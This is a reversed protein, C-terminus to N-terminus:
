DTGYADENPICYDSCLECNYKKILWCGMERGDKIFNCCLKLDEKDIQITSPIISATIEGNGANGDVVLATPPNALQLFFVGTVAIAVILGFAFVYSWEM